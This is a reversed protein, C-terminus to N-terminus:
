VLWEMFVNWVRFLDTGVWLAQHYFNSQTLKITSHKLKARLYDPGEGLEVIISDTSFFNPGIKVAFRATSFSFDALSFRHYNTKGTSGNIVQIFAHADNGMAVGPILAYRV